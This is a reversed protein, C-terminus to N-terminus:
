VDDKQENWNRNEKKEEVKTNEHIGQILQKWFPFFSLLCALYYQTLCSTM